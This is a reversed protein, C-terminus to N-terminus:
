VASRGSARGMAAPAASSAAMWRIRSRCVRQDRRRARSETGLSTRSSRPPENRQRPCLMVPRPPSELAIRHDTVWRADVLALGHSSLRWSLAEYTDGDGLEVYNYPKEPWLKSSPQGADRRAREAAKFSGLMAPFQGPASAQLGSRVLSPYLDAIQAQIAEVRVHRPVIVDASWTVRTGQTRVIAM